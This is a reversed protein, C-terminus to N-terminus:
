GTQSPNLPPLPTAVKRPVSSASAQGTPRAAQAVQATVAAIVRMEDSEASTAAASDGTQSRSKPWRLM